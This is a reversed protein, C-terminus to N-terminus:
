CRTQLRLLFAGTRHSGTDGFHDNYVFQLGVLTKGSGPVGTVLAIHHSGEKDAQQAVRVLAEITEPIGASLARRIRPLPEHQFIRRAASVLSPLPAYDAQLWNPDGGPSGAAVLSAVSIAMASPSIIWVEGRKSNLDAPAGNVVLLPHVRKDHSGAHYHNLDRAYAHVQDVYAPLPAVDSKFELVVIDDGALLVLDPRRGRERPIEYEFALHWRAAEPRSSVLGALQEQLHSYCEQWAATQGSDPSMLMCHYHHEKLSQLWTQEPLGLFSAISGHWGCPSDNSLHRSGWIDFSHHEEEQVWKLCRKVQQKGKGAAIAHVTPGDPYEVAQLLM